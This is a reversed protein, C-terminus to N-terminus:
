DVSMDDIETLCLCHRPLLPMKFVRCLCHRRLLPLQLVLCLCHRRLLPLQFVLCLPLAEAVVATPVGPVFATGGCCLCNSCLAFATGGCWLCNSCVACLCNSCLATPVGPVFATGGCCLCNSCLAFATGWRVRRSNSLQRELSLQLEECLADHRTAITRHRFRILPLVLVLM